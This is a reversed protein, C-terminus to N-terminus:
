RGFIDVRIANRQAKADGIGGFEGLNANSGEPGVPLPSLLVLQGNELKDLGSM